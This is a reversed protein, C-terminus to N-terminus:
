GPCVCHHWGQFALQLPVRTRDLGSQPDPSCVPDEMRQEPHQLQLIRQICSFEAGSRIFPQLAVRPLAVRGGSLHIPMPRGSPSTGGLIHLHLPTMQNPHIEQSGYYDRDALFRCFFFRVGFLLLLRFPM